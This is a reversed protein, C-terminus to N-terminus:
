VQFEIVIKCGIARVSLLEDEGYRRQEREHAKTESRLEPKFRNHDSLRGQGELKNLEVVHLQLNWECWHTSQRLM